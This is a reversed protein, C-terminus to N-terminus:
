LGLQNSLWILIGTSFDLKSMSHRNCLFFFFFLLFPFDDKLVLCDRHYRFSFSEGESTFVADPIFM